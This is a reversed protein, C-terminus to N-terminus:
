NLLRFEASAMLGQCFVAFTQEESTMPPIEAENTRAGPRSRGGGMGGPRRFPGQPRRSTRQETDFQRVPRYHNLFANAAAMDSEDAQRGYARLFAHRIRSEVDPFRKILEKAM